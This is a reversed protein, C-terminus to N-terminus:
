FRSTSMAHLECLSIPVSLSYTHTHTDTNFNFITKLCPASLQVFFILKSYMEFISM